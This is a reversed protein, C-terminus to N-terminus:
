SGFGANWDPFQAHRALVRLTGGAYPVGVVDADGPDPGGTTALITRGDRSLGWGILGQRFTGVRKVRGTVPDVTEAYSTDQGGFEALLRGGDASWETASLGSLLFPPNTHTLRHLGAGSPKVLYLDLKPNDGRRKAARSRSFAIWQPGWVPASSHGDRTLAVPAGGAAAAIWIDSTPGEGPARTYILQTGDPSFAVDFFDRGTAITRVVKGSAADILILRKTGLEAGTVSAVTSSDPSWAAAGDQWNALLIRSPGGTTPVIALRATFRAFTDYLVLKGDPSVAPETGKVLRHAASGDDNAAWVWEPQPTKPPSTPFGGRVYVLMAAASAVLAGLSLAATLGCVVAIRHGLKM